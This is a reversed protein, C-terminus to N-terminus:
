DANLQTTPQQTAALYTIRVPNPIDPLDQMDITLVRKQRRATTSVLHSRLQLALIATQRSPPRRNTVHAFGRMEQLLKLMKMRTAM